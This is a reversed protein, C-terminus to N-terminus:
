PFPAVVVDSANKFTVSTSNTLAYFGVALGIVIVSIGLMYEVVSQGRRGKM